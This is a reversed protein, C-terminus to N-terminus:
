GDNGLRGRLKPIKTVYHTASLVSRTVGIVIHFGTVIDFSAGILHGAQFAM